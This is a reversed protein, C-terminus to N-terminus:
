SNAGIIEPRIEQSFFRSFNVFGLNPQMKQMKMEELIKTRIDQSSLIIVYQSEM